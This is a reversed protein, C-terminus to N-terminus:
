RRDLGSRDRFGASGSRPLVVMSPIRVSQELHAYRVRGSETGDTGSSLGRRAVENVSTMLDLVRRGVRVTRIAKLSEPQSLFHPRNVAWFRQDVSIFSHVAEM